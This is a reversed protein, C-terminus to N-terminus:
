PSYTKEYELCVEACREMNAAFCQYLRALHLLHKRIADENGIPVEASLREIIEAISEAAAGNRRTAGRLEGVLNVRQTEVDM